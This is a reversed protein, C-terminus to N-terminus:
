RMTAERQRTDDLIDNVYIHFLGNIKQWRVQGSHIKRYLHRRSIGAISAAEAVPKYDHVQLEQMQSLDACCIFYLPQRNRRYIRHRVQGKRIARLLRSRDSGTTCAETLPIFQVHAPLTYRATQEPM